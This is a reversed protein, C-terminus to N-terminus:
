PAALPLRTAALGEPYLGNSITNDLGVPRLELQGLVKVVWREGM